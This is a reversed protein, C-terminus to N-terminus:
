IKYNSVYKDLHQVPIEWRISSENTVQDFRCSIELNIGIQVQRDPADKNVELLVENDM